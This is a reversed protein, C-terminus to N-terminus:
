NPELESSLKIYGAITAIFNETGYTVVVAVMIILILIKKKKKKHTLLHLLINLFLFYNIITCYAIEGFQFQIGSICGTWRIICPLHYPNTQYM